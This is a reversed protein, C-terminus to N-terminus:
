SGFKLWYTEHKHVCKWLSLISKRSHRNVQSHMCYEESKIEARLVINRDKDSIQFKHQWDEEMEGTPVPTQGKSM